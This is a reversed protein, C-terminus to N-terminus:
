RVSEVSLVSRETLIRHVLSCYQRSPSSTSFCARDTCLAFVRQFLSHAGITCHLICIYIYLARPTPSRKFNCIASTTHAGARRIYIRATWHSNRARRCSAGRKNRSSTTSDDTFDFHVFLAAPRSRNNERDKKDWFTYVVCSTWKSCQRRPKENVHSLSHARSQEDM